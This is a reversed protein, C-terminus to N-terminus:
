SAPNTFYKKRIRSVTEPQVNLYSAVLYQPIRNVLDQRGAVLDQYRRAPSDLMLSKIRDHMKLFLYENVKRSMTEVFPFEQGLLRLDNREIVYVVTDELCVIEKESVTNTVFSYYDSIFSNEYAFEFVVDAGDKDFSCKMLGREILGIRNCQKGRSLFTENKRLTLRSFRSLFIEADEQSIGWFHSLSQVVDM